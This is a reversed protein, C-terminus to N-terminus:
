AFHPLQPLSGFMDKSLDPGGRKSLQGELAAALRGGMHRTAAVFHV